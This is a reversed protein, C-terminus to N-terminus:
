ASGAFNEDWIKYKGYKYTGNLEKEINKGGWETWATKIFEQACKYYNNKFGQRSIGNDRLRSKNVSKERSSSSM